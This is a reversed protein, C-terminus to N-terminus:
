LYSSRVCKLQKSLFKSGNMCTWSTMGTQLSCRIHLYQLVLHHVHKSHRSELCEKLTMTLLLPICTWQLATISTTSTSAYEMELSVFVSHMFDGRNDNATLLVISWSDAIFM